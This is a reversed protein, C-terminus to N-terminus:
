TKQNLIVKDLILVPVSTKNKNSKTLYINKGRVNNELIKMNRIFVM